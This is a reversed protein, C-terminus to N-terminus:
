TIAPTTSSFAIINEIIDWVGAFTIQTNARLYWILSDKALQKFVNPTIDSALLLQNSERESEPLLSREHFPLRKFGDAEWTSRGCVSQIQYLNLQSEVHTEQPSVVPQSGSEHWQEDKIGDRGRERDLRHLRSSCRDWRSGNIQSLDTLSLRISFQASSEFSMITNGWFTAMVRSGHSRQPSLRFVIM